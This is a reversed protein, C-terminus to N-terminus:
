ARKLAKGVLTSLNRRRLSSPTSPRPHRTRPLDQAAPPPPSDRPQPVFLAAATDARSARLNGLRKGGPAPRRAAALPPSCPQACAPSSSSQTEEVRLTPNPWSGSAAPTHGLRRTGQSPSLQSNGGPEATQGRQPNQSGLYCPRGQIRLRQRCANIPLKRDYIM